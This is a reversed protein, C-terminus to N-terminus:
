CFVHASPLRRHALHTALLVTPLGMPWQSCNRMENLKEDPLVLRVRRNTPLIDDSHLYHKTMYLVLLARMGYFSFREWMEAFFLCFLGRPHNSLSLM